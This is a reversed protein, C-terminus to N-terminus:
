FISVVLLDKQAKILRVKALPPLQEDRAILAEDLSQLFVQGDIGFRSFFSKVPREAFV